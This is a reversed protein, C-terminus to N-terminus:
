WAHIAEDYDLFPAEQAMGAQVWYERLESFDSSPPEEAVIASSATGCEPCVSLRPVADTLGGCESCQWYMAM